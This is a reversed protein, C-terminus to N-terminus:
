KCLVRIVLGVLLEISSVLLEELHEDHVCVAEGFVVEERFVPIRASDFHIGSTGFTVLVV